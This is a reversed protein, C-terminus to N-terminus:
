DAAPPGLRTFPLQIEFVQQAVDAIDDVQAIHRLRAEIGLLQNQHELLEHELQARRLILM